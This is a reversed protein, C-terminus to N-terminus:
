SRILFVNKLPSSPCLFPFGLYVQLSFYPSLSSLTPRLPSCPSLTRSLSLLTVHIFREFSTSCLLCVQLKGFKPESTSLELLSQM